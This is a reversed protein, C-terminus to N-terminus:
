PENLYRWLKISRQVVRRQVAVLRETKVSARPKGSFISCGNAPSIFEALPDTLHHPRRRPPVVDCAVRGAEGLGVPSGPRM